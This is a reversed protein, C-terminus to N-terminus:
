GIQRNNKYWWRFQKWLKRCRVIDGLREPTDKTYCVEM